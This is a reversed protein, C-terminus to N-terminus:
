QRMFGNGSGFIGRDGDRGNRQKKGDDNKNDNGDDTQTGDDKKDQNDKKDKKANRSKKKDAKKKDAAEKDAKKKASDDTLQPRNGNRDRDKGNTTDAQSGGADPQAQRMMQNRRDDPAPTTRGNTDASSDRGGERQGRESPQQEQIRERDRDRFNVPPENNRGNDHQGPPQAPPQPRDGYAPANGRSSPTYRFRPQLREPLPKAIRDNGVNYPVGDFYIIRSVPYGDRVERDRSFVPPRNLTNYPYRRFHDQLRPPIPRIRRDDDVYYPVNRIFIIRVYYYGEYSPTNRYDYYVDDYPSDYYPPPYPRPRVVCGAMFVALGTLLLINRLNM